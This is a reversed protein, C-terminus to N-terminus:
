MLSTICWPPLHHSQITDGENDDDNDDDTTHKTDVSASVSARLILCSTPVCIDYDLEEWSALMVTTATATM